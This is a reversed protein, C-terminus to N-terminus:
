FQSNLSMLVKAERPYGHGNYQGTEPSAAADLDMSFWKPGVTFGATAVPGFGGAGINKSAGVRFKFWDLPRLELGGGITQSSVGPLTTDNKTLDMDAAISLWTFPDVSVGGRVQPRIKFGDDTTNLGPTSFEPTNLNKAVVGVNVSHWKWLAGLDVGWSLSDKHEKTINRFIDGSSTTFLNTGSVFVRGAMLKVAGGIGLTGFSGLDIPYGYALPLEFYAIGRTQLSSRNTDISGATSGSAVTNGLRVLADTASAASINATNASALQRDFAFAINDGTAGGGFANAITAFQQTSFFTPTGSSTAGIAAAMDAPTTIGKPRISALDPQPTAAGQLTGFIGTGFHGFRAGVFSSGNLRLSDSGGQRLEDMVGVIQVLQSMGSLNQATSGGSGLNGTTPDGLSSLRDLKGALNDDIQYGASAGIKIATRDAEFALAGPNWYAAAGDLTRAVGAGGMGIGGIPQFELALATSAALLVATFTIL